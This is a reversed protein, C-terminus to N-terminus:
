RVIGRHMNLDPRRLIRRNRGERREARCTEGAQAQSDLDATWHSCSRLRPRMLDRQPRPHAIVTSDSDIAFAEHIGLKEWDLSLDPRADQERRLVVVSPARVTYSATLLPPENGPEVIDEPSPRATDVVRRWETSQGEPVTFSHDEWYGNIM